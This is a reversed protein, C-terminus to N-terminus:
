GPLHRHAKRAFGRGARVKGQVKITERMKETETEKWEDLAAGTICFNEHNTWKVADAPWARPLWQLLRDAANQGSEDLFPKVTKVKKIAFRRCGGVQGQELNRSIRETM